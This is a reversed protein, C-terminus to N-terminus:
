KAKKWTYVSTIAYNWVSGVFIGALAAVFWGTHSGFLYSAIGVNSVAGISCALTFSM